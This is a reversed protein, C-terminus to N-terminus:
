FGLKSLPIEAIDIDEKNTSYIVWLSGNHEIAHPYQVSRSGKARGAFRRAPPNKRIAMARDFTWGDRSFSIALPDRAQQNPNNILYYWGNSLRGPFNKSTADPYDTRVPRSWTRGHDTSLARLLFGSRTNDRVIMHVEGAATAYYTPEDMRHFPPDSAIPVYKWAGPSDALAMRLNMSSDRCVLALLGNLREPPFNNMCNEAYVGRPEWTSGTWEFRRLSLNKWVESRGRLRYDASEIYAALATLKGESPFIGRAIWRGPGGPGDPDAVLEAAESWKHGDLSSAYLVRQDPDEEGVGSSSWMAWFRGDFHAIYSHLNFGSTREVGRYVNSHLAPAGPLRAPDELAGARSLMKDAFRVPPLEFGSIEYRSIEIDEKNTSYIVWLAGDHEIAHPHQFSNPAKARGRHRQPPAGLRLALHRGFTWGDSSFGIALPDRSKQDPNNILYFWGNSLRGGFIKSTADSYTTRVPATWSRGFDRSTSHYLYKSRNADRLVMHVVGEADIYETPESMRNHPPEGPLPTAIWRGGSELATHMRAFSDRCTMVNPGGYSRPPYNNMCNEILVGQNLWRSGDWEFRFLRLGHWSERGNPTDRPGDYGAALANLKGRDIYIGRAIWRREGAPGDPDDAVIGPASWTLGDTSTAYRVIQSSSDEDVQGSSWVAWFRGDFRAIYSHLNFQWAGAEGRYVASTRSPAIELSKPSALLAPDALLLAPDRIQATAAASFLLFAAVDAFRM